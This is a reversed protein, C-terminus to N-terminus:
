PLMWRKGTEFLLRKPFLLSLLGLQMLFVTISTKRSQLSLYFLKSFADSEVFASYGYRTLFKLYLKVVLFYASRVAPLAHLESGKHYSRFFSAVELSVSTRIFYEWHNNLTELSNRIQINEQLKSISMAHERYKQLPTALNAIRSHRLVRIWLDYDESPVKTPDYLGANVIVSKRFMVTPHALPNKFFSQWFLNKSSAERMSLGTEVGLQDVIICSSGVIAVDSNQLLFNLENEIREPLAIDDADMRAIFDGKTMGIGKNLCVVYGFNEDSYIPVIRGDKRAYFAIIDRSTDSSGDDFILFEFHRYTQSLISQICEALYKDANYVSMLISVLQSAM